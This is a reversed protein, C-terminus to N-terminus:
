FDYNDRAQPGARRARKRTQAARQAQGIPDSEPNAAKELLSLLSACELASLWGTFSVAPDGSEIRTLTRRGIRAREAFDSQPQNRGLRALRIAQGLRIAVARAASSAFESEKRRM